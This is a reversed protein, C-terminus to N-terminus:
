LEIGKFEPTVWAHATDRGSLLGLPLPWAIALREDLPHLGGEAAPAYAASHCYLLEVSDTLAQFGHAFGEPILLAAKNEASLVTGHWQLFTPSGARVDVVVDWVEGRLCTVLKMEAHPPNQYHLGRVTGRTATAAHNIQQVPSHWGAALLQEACFIRAFSGRIDGISQRTVQKLGALPLNSITFQSM